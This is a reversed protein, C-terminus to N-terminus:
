TFSAASALNAFSKFHKPIDSRYDHSSFFLSICNCYSFPHYKLITQESPGPTRPSISAISWLLKWIPNTKKSFHQLFDSLWSYLFNIMLYSIDGHMCHLHPPPLPPHLADILCAIFLAIEYIMPVLWMAVWLSTAVHLLLTHIMFWHLCPYNNCSRM